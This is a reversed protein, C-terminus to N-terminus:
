RQERIGERWEPGNLRGTTCRAWNWRERAMFGCILLLPSMLDRTLFARSRELRSSSQLLNQLKTVPYIRVARIAPCVKTGSVVIVTACNSVTWPDQFLRCIKFSVNSGMHSRILEVLRRNCRFEICTGDPDDM